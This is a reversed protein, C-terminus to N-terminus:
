VLLPGVNSCSESLRREGILVEGPMARVAYLDLTGVLVEAESVPHLGGPPQRAAAGEARRWSATAVLCESRESPPGQGSRASREASARRWALQQRLAQYEEEIKMTQHRQPLFCRLSESPM